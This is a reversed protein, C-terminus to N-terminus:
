CCRVTTFRSTRLGPSELSADTKEISGAEERPRGTLASYSPRESEVDSEVGSEVDGNEDYPVLPTVILVVTPAQTDAFRVRTASTQQLPENYYDNWRQLVQKHRVLVSQRMPPKYVGM